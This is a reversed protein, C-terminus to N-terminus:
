RQRVQGKGLGGRQVRGPGGHFELGPAQWVGGLEWYWCGRNVMTPAAGASVGGVSEGERAGLRGM